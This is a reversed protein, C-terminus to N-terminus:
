EAPEMNFDAFDASKQAAELRALAGLYHYVGSLVTGDKKKVILRVRNAM